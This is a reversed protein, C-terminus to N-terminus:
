IWIRDVNYLDFPSDNSVIRLSRRMSQAILMRDFPDRHDNFFPLNLYEHIDEFEVPLVAISLRGLLDKLDKFEITLSLKGLGSKIAMEWISVISVNLDYRTDELLEATKADLHHDAQLYWVLIHTDILLQIM